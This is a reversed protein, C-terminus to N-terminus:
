YILAIGVYSLLLFLSFGVFFLMMAHVKRVVFGYCMSTSVMVLTIIIPLTPKENELVLFYVGKYMFLFFFSISAHWDGNFALMFISFVFGLILIIGSFLISYYKYTSM